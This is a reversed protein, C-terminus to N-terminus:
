WRGAFPSSHAIRHVPARVVARAKKVHPGYDAKIYNAGGGVYDNDRNYEDNGIIKGGTGRTWSIKDLERFLVQSIHQERANECAHNNESVSWVVLHHEDNLSIFSGDGLPLETGKSILRKNLMKKQPARPKSNKFIMTGIQQRDQYCLDPAVAYGYDWARWYNFNRKGKGLTRLAALCAKAKNFLWDQRDNWAKIITKRFTPWVKKPIVITGKEWNYCSM